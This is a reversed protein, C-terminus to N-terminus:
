ELLDPFQEFRKNGRHIIGMRLANDMAIDFWCINEEM